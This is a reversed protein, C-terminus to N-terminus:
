VSAILARDWRMVSASSNSYRSEDEVGFQGPSAGRLWQPMECNSTSDIHRGVALRYSLSDRDGVGEAVDFFCGLESDGWPLVKSEPFISYKGHGEFNASYGSYEQHTM